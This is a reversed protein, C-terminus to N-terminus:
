GPLDAKFGRILRQSLSTHIGNIVEDELTGGSSRYTIRISISKKGPAIPDGTFVDFLQVSEIFHEDGECAAEIVRGSEIEEDLILTIDRSTSPFKSLPSFSKRKPILASLVELDAEFIFTPQKLGMLQLTKPHIEGVLGLLTGGASVLATHGPRTYRCAEDPQTTFRAAKVDMGALLAELAGKIDYFDCAESPQQWGPLDRAGTWLAALMETERPLGGGKRTRFTTGIEFLRLDRIQQSANRYMTQLLGSVLTSRLVAQDESLPNLIQITGRRPDDLGLQLRDCANPHEFSYNVAESFGLGTMLNRIVSRLAFRSPLPATQGTISPFTTPIRQYGWLRAVEEMLDEPRQIDVRYSPATVHLRDDSGDPHTRVEIEVASLLAIMEQRDITTGLLRNTASVSLEIQRAKFPGPNEDIHGSILRGGAINQMLEAARDLARVTALPDVGREFRHSADTALGLRKATRRISIPDFCASELLVRTTGVEIESNLGGMVGAIAVPKQGDCIMLMDPELRRTKGDLTTFTEGTKATRVVIRHDALHDFDFAHLPQGMEMMVFNTIDVVNNVPRLGISSLRDQLWFPSPAVTIGELLRAAYRPCHEPAEIHVSTHQFIDADADVLDIRPYQVRSKAIAAVERAVGLVSLCDARNPTLGIEFVTDSLGLAEPLSAGVALHADLRMLGGSDPGLGLEPAGCLMGESRQGRIVTEKITVGNPLEAGPMAVPVLLDPEANPAGCVITLERDGVDVRCVRLRDANPHATVSIIRGVRNTALNAFRNEVAEIELGAMTLADALEKEPLPISVYEKLWSLSVKM